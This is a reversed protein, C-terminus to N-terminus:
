KVHNIKLIDLTNPKLYEIDLTNKLEKLFVEVETKPPLYSLGSMRTIRNMFGDTNTERHEGNMMFYFADLTAQSRNIGAHCHLYVKQNNKYANYLVIMAGYISNLGIDSKTENMPFWYVNNCEERIKLDIDSYWESSMNIILDYKILEGNYEPFFNNNIFPYAGVHIMNKIYEKIEESKM